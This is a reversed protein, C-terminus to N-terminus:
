RPPGFTNDGWSWVTGNALSMSHARGAAIVTVGAPLGTVVVPAAVTGATKGNPGIQGKANWGWARVTGDAMLAMSHYHGTTVATAGTLVSVPSQVNVLPAGNGVQGKADSGWSFVTGGALALAHERGGAVDTAGTLVSAPTFAPGAAGNGLQGFGDSGFTLVDGAPALAGAPTAGAILAGVVALLAAGGVGRSMSTRMVAGVGGAVPM